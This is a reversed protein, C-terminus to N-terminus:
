RGAAGDAAWWPAALDDADATAARGEAALKRLHAWVSFRAVPHLAAPVDAYLRAVVAEATVGEGGPAPLTALVAAERAQRHTVYAELVAAPDDIVPGHGPGIRSPRRRRVVELSELYAAMDGDPPAIVVTSGSMVHDGSLLLGTDAVEFCLHNSCHGPTHVAVLRHGDAELHDGDVLRRDPAFARDHGDLGHGHGPSSPAAGGATPALRHVHAPLDPAPGWGLVPAGTVAALRAALPSHDVHTHTVAVAAVAATGIAAVLAALHADDDPGPDVVVLRDGGVLYTNTGRGTMLGPNPALVCRVGPAVDLPVGTPRDDGAAAPAVPVTAGSM